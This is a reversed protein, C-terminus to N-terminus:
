PGRWRYDAGRGGPPLPIDAAAQQLAAFLRTGGHQAERVTVIRPVLGPVRNMAAQVRTAANRAMEGRNRENMSASQDVVVLATEPLPAM